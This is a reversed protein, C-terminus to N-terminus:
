GFSSGRRAAGHERCLDLVVRAESLTDITLGEHHLHLFLGETEACAHERLIHDLYIRVLVREPEDRALAVSIRASM